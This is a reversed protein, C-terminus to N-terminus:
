LQPANNPNVAGSQIDEQQMREIEADVEEDTYNELRQMSTRRSSLGSAVKTQEVQTEIMADTPLVDSYEINVDSDLEKNLMKFGIEIIDTVGKSIRSRKTDTKRIANFLRIRMSEVREPQAGQTLEFMPVGSVWSVLQLQRDIHKFAETILPNENIIYAGRPTDKTPLELTDFQQWNGAEDKTGDLKAMELIADLNKILQTAVHTTRENIEQLQPMIDAYDSKGFGFRTKRGNDIQVIPLRGLGEITEEEKAAIGIRELTVKENAKSDQTTSWAEREIKVDDGELSYHQTYLFLKRNKTDPRNDKPDRIYTAFIVSGDSQPFYQDKGVAQIKFKGDQIFGLLVEYGFESQNVAFDYISEKIENEKVIENLTNVTNEDENNLFIRLRTVDGQVFDGYFDSIKSPIAHAVYIADTSSKFQKKVLDHLPLVTSQKNEYLSHYNRLTTMREIEVDNPFSKSLEAM